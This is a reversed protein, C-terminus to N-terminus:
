SAQGSAWCMQGLGDDYQPLLELLKAREKDLSGKGKIELGWAVGYRIMNCIGAPIIPPKLTHIM